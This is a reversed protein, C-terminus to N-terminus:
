STLIYEDSGFKSFFYLCRFVNVFHVFDLKKNQKETEAYINSLNFKFIFM